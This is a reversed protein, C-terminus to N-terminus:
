RRRRLALAGYQANTFPYSLGIGSNYLQSVESATLAVNWIGIEDLKGNFRLGGNRQGLWLSDTSYDINGSNNTVSTLTEAVGNIYINQTTGTRTYIVHTWTGTGIATTSTCACFLGGGVRLQIQINTTTGNCRMEYSRTDGTNEGKALMMQFSSTSTINVWGGFSIDSTPKIAATDSVTHFASGNYIAGNNIKGAGYTVSTNVASLSSVSDTANGSSEDLKWYAVPSTIAM